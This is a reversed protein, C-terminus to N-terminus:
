ARNKAQVTKAEAFDAVSKLHTEYVYRLIDPWDKQLYMFAGDELKDLGAVEAYRAAWRQDYRRPNAKDWAVAKKAVTLVRKRNKEQFKKLDESLTRGLAAVAKRARKDRVRLADYVARLRQASPADYNQITGLLRAHSDCFLQFTSRAADLQRADGNAALLTQMVMRQSLMRQRAALNLDSIQGTAPARTSTARVPLSASAPSHALSTTMM